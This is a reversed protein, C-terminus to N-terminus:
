DRRAHTGESIQVVSLEDLKAQFLMLVMEKIEKVDDRLPELEKLEVCEKELKAIQQANVNVQRQLGGASFSWGVLVLIAAWPIAQVLKQLLLRM